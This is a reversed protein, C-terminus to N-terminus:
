GTEAVRRAAESPTAGLANRCRALTEQRNRNALLGYFRIRVFGGPLIRLLFRHLFEHAHLRM